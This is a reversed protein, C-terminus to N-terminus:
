SSRRWRLSSNCRCSISFIAPRTASLPRVSTGSRIYKLFPRTLTASARALPLCACSLRSVIRLRSTSRSVRAATLALRRHASDGRRGLALSHTDPGPQEDDRREDEGDAEIREKPDLFGRVEGRMEGVRLLQVREGVQPRWM